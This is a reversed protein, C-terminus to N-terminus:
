LKVIRLVEDGLKCFYIGPSLDNILVLGDPPLTTQRILKGDVGFLELTQNQASTAILLYDKCPNPYVSVAQQKDSNVQLILSDPFVVEFNSAFEYPSSNCTTVADWNVSWTMMGGLDPYGSPEVLVYSGPQNVGNLLYNMAEYVLETSLFGSGAANTCAPLGVLVKQAPFGEFFGGSTTFGQILAESCAVIFDPTGATYVNGDIGYMSGSNYLQVHIYDIQERLADLIPLYGGWIGGYASMGGQVYATEPAFSLVMSQSHTANFHAEIEQIAAILNQADVSTPSAITGSALITNGSEIDIDIGDFPYTDLLSNMSTVFDIRDQANPMSFSPGAGGISLLVQKGAAQLNSIQNSFEVQNAGEPVFQMTLDSNSTPVAFSVCIIDYRSDVQDLPLYPAEVADWNQWYGILKPNQASVHILTFLVFLLSYLLRM